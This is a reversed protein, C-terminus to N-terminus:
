ISLREMNQKKGVMKMKIGYDCNKRTDKPSVLFAHTVCSSYNSLLLYFRSTLFTIFAFMVPYVPWYVM